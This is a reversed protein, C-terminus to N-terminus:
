HSSTSGSSSDAKAHEGLRQARLADSRTRAEAVFQAVNIAQLATIQEYGIHGEQLPPRRYARGYGDRTWFCLDILTRRLEVHDIRLMSGEEELWRKLAHNVAMETLEVSMPICSSALALTVLMDERSMRGLTIEKKTVLKELARLTKSLSEREDRIPLTLGLPKPFREIM